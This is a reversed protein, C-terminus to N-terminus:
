FSHAGHAGFAAIYQLTWSNESNGDLKNLDYQLRIRSFESNTWDLMLSQQKPSKEAALLTNNFVAPLKDSHLQGHRLGVRWQRAFRYVGELYWGNQDQDLATNTINKDSFLGVENRNFYEGQLKLEQHTRNGQPSWKYIFDAIFLKSTGSFM